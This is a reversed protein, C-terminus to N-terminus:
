RVRATDQMAAMKGVEACSVRFQVALDRIGLIGGSSLTRAMIGSLANHGCPRSHPRCSKQRTPAM